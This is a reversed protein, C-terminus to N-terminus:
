PLKLGYVLREFQDHRSRQNDRATEFYRLLDLNDTHGGSLGKVSRRKDCLWAGHEAGEQGVM